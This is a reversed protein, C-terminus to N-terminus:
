MRISQEIMLMDNSVMEIWHKIFVTMGIMVNVLTAPRLM